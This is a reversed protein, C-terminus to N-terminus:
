LDYVYKSDAMYSYMGYYEKASNEPRKVAQGANPQKVPAPTVNQATSTADTKSGESNDSSSNSNCALILLTLSILLILQNKM